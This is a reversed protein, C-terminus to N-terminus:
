YAQQYRGLSYATASQPISEQRVEGFNNHATFKWSLVSVDIPKYNKHAWLKKNILGKVKRIYFRQTLIQKM